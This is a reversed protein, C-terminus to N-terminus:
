ESKRCIPNRATGFLGSLHLEVAGSFSVLINGNIQSNYVANLWKLCLIEQHSSISESMM